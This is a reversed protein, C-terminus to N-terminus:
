LPIPIINANKMGINVPVARTTEFNYEDSCFATSGGGDMHVLQTAGCARMMAEAEAYTAQPLVGIFMATPTTIGTIATGACSSTPSGFGIITRNSRTSSSSGGSSWIGTVALSMTAENYSDIALDTMQPSSGQISFARLISNITSSTADEWYQVDGTGNGALGVPLGTGGNNFFNANVAAMLGKSSRWSCTLIAGSNIENSSSAIVNTTNMNGIAIYGFDKPNGGTSCSEDVHDNLKVASGNPVVSRILGPHFEYHLHPGSSNGTNGMYGILDGRGITQGTKLGPAILSLHAYISIYGDTSTVKVHLGYGSAGSDIVTITGNHSAHVPPPYSITGDWAIDFAQTEGNVVYTGDHSTTPLQSIKGTTPWCAVLGDTLDPDVSLAKSYSVPLPILFASQITTITYITVMVGIIMAGSPALLSIPLGFFVGSSAAANALLGTQTASARIATNAATNAITGTTANTAGLTTAQSTSFKSSIASEIAQGIKAGAITGPIAGIGGGAMFGLTGGIIGGILGGVSSLLYIINRILMALLIGTIAIIKKFGIKKAVKYLLPLIISAGPIESLLLSVGKVATSISSDIFTKLLKKTPDLKKKTYKKFRNAVKKYIKSNKVRDRLRKVKKLPRNKTSLQYNSNQLNYDAEMIERPSYDDFFAADPYAALAAGAVLYDAILLANEDGSYYLYSDAVYQRYNQESSLNQNIEYFEFLVMEEPTLESVGESSAKQATNGINKYTKLNSVDFFLFEPIFQLKTDKNANKDYAIGFKEYVIRQENPQLNNWLPVFTKYQKAIKDIKAKRKSNNKEEMGGVVTEAGNKEIAARTGATFGLHTANTESDNRILKEEEEADVRMLGRTLSTDQISLTLESVRFTSYNILSSKLKKLQQDSISINEPIGFILALKKASMGEIIAEMDRIAEDKSKSSKITLEGTNPDIVFFDQEKGYQFVLADLTNQINKNLVPSDSNLINNISERFLEAPPIIKIARGSILTVHFDRFNEKQKESLDAYMPDNVIKSYFDQLQVTNDSGFRPYFKLLAAQRKSASGFMLALDKQDMELTFKFIDTRLGELLAQNVLSTEIGYATFMEYVARNYMWGVEYQIQQRQKQTLPNTPGSTSGQTTSPSVSASPSTQDASPISIPIPAVSQSASESLAGGPSGGPLEEDEAVRATEEAKKKEEEQKALEDVLKKLDKDSLTNEYKNKSKLFDRNADFASIVSQLLAQAETFHNLFEVEDITKYGTDFNGWKKVLHLEGKAYESLRSDKEVLIAAINSLARVLDSPFLYTYFRNLEIAGFGSELTKLNTSLLTLNNGINISTVPQTFIEEVSVNRLSEVFNAIKASDGANIGYVIDQINDLRRRFQYKQKEDAM